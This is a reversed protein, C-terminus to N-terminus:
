PLQLPPQHTSIRKHSLREPPFAIEGRIATESEVQVESDECFSRIMSVPCITGFLLCRWSLRKPLTQGFLRTILILTFTKFSKFLSLIRIHRLKTKLGFSIMRYSQSGIIGTVGQQLLCQLSYSQTKHSILLICKQASITGGERRM